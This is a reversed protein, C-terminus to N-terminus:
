MFYQVAKELEELSIYYKEGRLEGKLPLPYCSGIGTKLSDLPYRKNCYRCRLYFGELAYGMKYPYCKACADLYSEISGRLKLLIFNVGTDKVRVSFFQPTVEELSTVDIVVAGESITADNYSQRSSCSILLATFFLIILSATCRMIRIRNILSNIEM